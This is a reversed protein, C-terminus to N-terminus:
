SMRYLTQKGLLLHRTRAGYGAGVFRRAVNTKLVHLANKKTLFCSVVCQLGASNGVFDRGLPGISGKPVAENEEAERRLIGKERM